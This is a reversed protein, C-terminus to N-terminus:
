ALEQLLADIKCQLDQAMRYASLIKDAHEKRGAWVDASLLNKSASEASLRATILHERLRRNEAEQKETM